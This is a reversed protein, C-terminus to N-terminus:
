PDSRLFLLAALAEFRDRFLSDLDEVVDTVASCGDDNVAGASAMSASCTLALTGPGSPELTLAIRHNADAALTTRTCTAGTATAQCSWGDGGAAALDATSPIAIHVEPSQLSADTENFVKLTFSLPEGITTERPAAMTARLAVPTGCVYDGYPTLLAVLDDDLHYDMVGEEPGRNALVLFSGDIVGIIPSVPYVPPAGQPQCSLAPTNNIRIMLNAIDYNVSDPPPYTLGDIELSVINQSEGSSRTALEHLSEAGQAPLAAGAAVLLKNARHGRWRLEVGADTFRAAWPLLDFLEQWRDRQDASHPRQVGELPARQGGIEILGDDTVRPTQAHASLALGLAVLLVSVRIM